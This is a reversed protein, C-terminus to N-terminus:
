AASDLLDLAIRRAKSAGLSTPFRLLVEEIERLGTEMKAILHDRAEIEGVMRGIAADHERNLSSVDCDCPLLGGTRAAACTVPKPVRDSM